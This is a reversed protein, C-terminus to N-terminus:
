NGVNHDMQKIWPCRGQKHENKDTKIFDKMLEPDWRGLCRNGSEERLFRSHIFVRGPLCHPEGPQPHNLIIWRDCLSACTQAVPHSRSIWIKRPSMNHNQPPLRSVVSLHGWFPRVLVFFSKSLWTDVATQLCVVLFLPFALLFSGSGSDTPAFCRSDCTQGQEWLQQTLCPVLAVM